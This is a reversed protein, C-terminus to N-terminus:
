LPNLYEERGGSPPNPTMEAGQLKSRMRNLFDVESKLGNKFEFSDTHSIERILGILHREMMQDLYKREENTFELLM